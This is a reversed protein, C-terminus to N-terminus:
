LIKPFMEAFLHEQFIVQASKRSRNKCPRLKVSTLFIVEPWQSYRTCHVNNPKCAFSGMTYVTVANIHWLAVGVSLTLV